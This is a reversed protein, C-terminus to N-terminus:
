EAFRGDLTIIFFWLDFAPHLMMENERVYQKVKEWAERASTKDDRARAEYAAALLRCVEAHHRLYFWSRAWCANESALNREIVPLFGSIVGSVRGLKEVAEESVVPKEGRMYVPDFLETLTPLYDRCLAWDPGFAARYYEESVFEFPLDRSWLTWGMAMMPLGTPFFARQGQCSMMGGLGLDRLGKMDEHIIEATQTFGPDNYQDWVLHYDFDFSDGAFQKQWAKLFAVNEEVTKPFQLKNREFPPLQPLPGTAAFSASYTRTIPAFMLIFRDPNEIKEREPPWLLDVYILFVIRTKLRKKTLLEDLENLMMVYFDAPRTDRCLECECHNNSGDALWFHMVGIGLHKESYDAIEEVIIRRVEPNGYCLNTNIPYGQWFERKGNVQALYQRTEDLIDDDVRNWGLGGIGFPECTWGHGVAHYVMGRKQIERVASATYERAEEVSLRRGELLPNQEHAYWREFFTHAERFQTFYANFGVKPMWEIIDRVHECSVAGEICIGRHRYSPVESLKVPPLETLSPIFEGDEGPRVWRCGLETLYRYVALLVSRPNIGAIIGSGGEVDIYVADDLEPDAVKPPTIRPFDSMLGVRIGDEALVAESGLVRSLYKRLEEAAFHITPNESEIRIATREDVMLWVGDVM